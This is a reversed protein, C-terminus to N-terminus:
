VSWGLRPGRLPMGLRHAGEDAIAGLESVAAALEARGAATLRYPRRRQDQELPEILGRQELRTIAGYLTGPGLAAGSFAEIDRALAYGHKPGSALSTLILVGPDNPRGARGRSGSGSGVGAL